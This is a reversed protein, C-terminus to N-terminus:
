QVKEWSNPDAPNGGKFRHGDEIDGIRPGGGQMPTSAPADSPAATQGGPKQRHAERAMEPAQTALKAENDLTDLVRNYTAADGATNLLSEAHARSSETVVNSGRGIIAAYANVIAQTRAMLEAQDPNLANRQYLQILQNFPLFSTRPLREIVGRAAPIFQQLEASAIEMKREQTAGVREATKKGGFEIRRNYIDEPSIGGQKQLKQSFEIVKARNKNGVDRTGLGQLVDTEGMNYRKALNMAAEDSLYGSGQTGEPLPPTVDTAEGGMADIRLLRGDYTKEFKPLLKGGTLATRGEPSTPEIGAAKLNRVEATPEQAKYLEQIPVAQSIINHLLLDNPPQQSLQQFQQPPIDGHDAADKLSEQWGQTKADGQLGMVYQARRANRMMKQDFQQREGEAMQGRVALVHSQVEPYRSLKDVAGPASPDKSYETLANQEGRQQSLQLQILSNRQAAQQREMALRQDEIGMSHRAQEEALQERRLQAAMAFPRAIDITPSQVGLAVSYDAM